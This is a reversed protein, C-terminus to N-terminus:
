KLTLKDMANRKYYIGRYKRQYVFDKLGDRDIDILKLGDHEHKSELVGKVSESGLLLNDRWRLSDAVQAILDLAGDGNIDSIHLNGRLDIADGLNNFEFGNSTNELFYLEEGSVVSYIDQDSDGDVDILLFELALLYFSSSTFTGNGVNYYIRFMPNSYSLIDLYGDGNIDILYIRGVFDDNAVPSVESFVGDGNNEYWGVSDYYAIGSNQVVTNVALIDVNKDGNIDGLRFEFGIDVEALLIEEGFFGSGNNKFWVLGSDTYTIVDLGDNSDLDAVIFANDQQVLINTEFGLKFNSIVNRKEEFGSGINRVWVIEAYRQANNYYTAIYLLDNLGDGDLDVFQYNLINKDISVLLAEDELGNNDDDVDSNDGIGDGDLDNWETSDMPFADIDNKYGDGDQDGNPDRQFRAVLYFEFDVSALDPTVEIVCPATSGECTKEWGTFFYGENPIATFTETLGTFPVSYSCSVESCDMDGSESVIYGGEDPTMVLNCGMLLALLTIGVFFVFKKVLIM